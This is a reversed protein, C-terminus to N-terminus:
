SYCSLHEQPKVISCIRLTHAKPTFRSIVCYLSTLQHSILTTQALYQRVTMFYGIIPIATSISSCVQYQGKVLMRGDSTADTSKGKFWRTPIRTENSHRCYRSSDALGQERVGCLPIFHGRDSYYANVALCMILQATPSSVL